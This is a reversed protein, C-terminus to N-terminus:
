YYLSRPSGHILKKWWPMEKYQRYLDEDGIPCGSLHIVMKARSVPMLKDCHCTGFENTYDEDKTEPLWMPQSYGFDFRM